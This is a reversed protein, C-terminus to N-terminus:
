QALPDSSFWLRLVAETFAERTGNLRLVVAERNESEDFEGASPETALLEAFRNRREWSIRPDFMVEVEGDDLFDSDFVIEPELLPLQDLRVVPADADVQEEWEQLRWELYGPSRGFDNRGDMIQSANNALQLDPGIGIESSIVPENPRNVGSPPELRWPVPAGLSEALLRVMWSVMGSVMATGEDGLDDFAPKDFWQYREPCARRATLPRLRQDLYIDVFWAWVEELGERGAGVADVPGDILTLQECWVEFRRDIGGVYVDYAAKAEEPTLESYLFM